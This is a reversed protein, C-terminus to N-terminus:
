AGIVPPTSTVDDTGWLDADEPMWSRRSRDSKDGGAGGMPAMPPMMPMRGAMGAEGMAAQEAAAAQRAAAAEATAGQGAFAPNSIEGSRAGGGVGGGFAGGFAGGPFGSPNGISGSPGGPGGGHFGGLAPDGGPGGGTPLLPQHNPTYGATTTQYPPIGAGGPGPLSTTLPPTSTPLQYTGGGPYTGGPNQHTGGPSNQHPTGSPYQHLVDSPNQHVGGPPNQHLGGPPNQHVGNPLGGGPGKPNGISGGPGGPGAGPGGPGGPGPPTQGSLDPAPLGSPDLGAPFQGATTDYFSSLTSHLDDFHSDFTPGHHQLVHDAFSSDYDHIRHDDEIVSSASGPGDNRWTQVTVATIRDPCLFVWRKTKWVIQYGYNKWTQPGTDDHQDNIMEKGLMGQVAGGVVGAFDSFESIISQYQGVASTTKSQIQDVSAKWTSSSGDAAGGGSSGARGDIRETLSGGFTCIKHAQSKFEEAAPGTWKGLLTGLADQFSQGGVKQGHGSVADTLLAQLDTWATGAAGQSKTLNSQQSKGDIGLIQEVRRRNPMNTDLETM